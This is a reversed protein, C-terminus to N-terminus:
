QGRRHLRKGTKAQQMRSGAESKGSVVMSARLTKSSRGSSGLESIYGTVSNRLSGGTAAKYRKREQKHKNVERQLYHIKKQLQNVQEMLAPAQKLIININAQEMKEIHRLWEDPKKGKKIVTVLVNAKEEPSEFRDLRKFVERYELFTDYANAMGHNKQLAEVIAIEYNDLCKESHNLTM